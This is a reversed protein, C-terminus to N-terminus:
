KVKKEKALGLKEKEKMSIFPVERVGPKLVPEMDEVAPFFVQYVPQMAGIQVGKGFQTVMKGSLAFNGPLYPMSFGINRPPACRVDEEIGYTILYQFLFPERQHHTFFARMQAVFSLPYPINLNTGAVTMCTACMERWTHGNLTFSLVQNGPQSFVKEKIYGQIEEIHTLLYELAASESHYLAMTRLTLFQAHIREVEEKISLPEAQKTMPLRFHLLQLSKVSAKFVQITNKISESSKIDLDHVQIALQELDSLAQRKKLFPVGNEPDFLERKEQLLKKRKADLYKIREEYDDTKPGRTVRKKEQGIARISDAIEKSQRVKHDVEEQLGMFNYLSRIRKELDQMAPKCAELSCVEALYHHFDPKPGCAKAMCSCTRDKERAASFLPAMHQHTYADIDKLTHACPNSSGSSFVKLSVEQGRSSKEGFPMLLMRENGESDRIILSGTIAFYNRGNADAIAFGRVVHALKQHTAELSFKSGSSTKVHLTSPCAVFATNHKEAAEALLEAGKVALATTNNLAFLVIAVFYVIGRFCVM